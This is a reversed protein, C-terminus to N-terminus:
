RAPDRDNIELIELSQTRFKFYRGKEARIVWEDEACLTDDL